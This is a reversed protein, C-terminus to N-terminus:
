KQVLTNTEPAQSAIYNKYVSTIKWEGNKQKEVVLTHRQDGNFNAYSIAVETIILSESESIVNYNATCDQQACGNMEKLAGLLISAGYRYVEHNRNHRVEAGADLISKMKKYDSKLFSDMYADVVFAARQNKLPQNNALATTTFAIGLLAIFLIKKSKM